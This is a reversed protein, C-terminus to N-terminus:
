RANPLVVSEKSSLFARPHQVRYPHFFPYPRLSPIESKMSTLDRPRLCNALLISYIFYYKYQLSTFCVDQNIIIATIIAIM